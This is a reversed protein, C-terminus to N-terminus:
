LAAGAGSAEEAGREGYVLQRRKTDERKAVAASYDGYGVQALQMLRNHFTRVGLQDMPDPLEMELRAPTSRERRIYKGVRYRELGAEVVREFDDRTATKRKGGTRKGIADCAQQSTVVIDGKLLVKQMLERDKFLPSGRQVQAGDPGYGVSM